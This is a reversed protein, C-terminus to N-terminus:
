STVRTYTRLASGESRKSKPDQIQIRKTFENFTTNAHSLDADSVHKVYIAKDHAFFCMFIVYQNHHTGIGKVFPHGRWLGKSIQPTMIKYAALQEEVLAELYSDKEAQTFHNFRKNEKQYNIAGVEYQKQSDISLEATQLSLKEDEEMINNEYEDPAYYSLLRVGIKPLCYEKWTGQWQPDMLLRLREYGGSLGVLHEEILEPTVYFPGAGLDIAQRNSAAQIIMEAHKVLTKPSLYPSNINLLQAKLPTFATTVRIEKGFYSIKASEWLAMQFAKILNLSGQLDAVLESRQEPTYHKELQEWFAQHLSQNIYGGTQSVTGLYDVEAIEPDKSINFSLPSISANEQLISSSQSINAEQAWLTPFLFLLFGLIIAKKM